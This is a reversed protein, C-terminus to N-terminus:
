EKRRAPERGDQLRRETQLYPVHARYCDIVKEFANSLLYDQPLVAQRRITRYIDQDTLRQMALAMRDADGRPVVLGNEGDRILDRSGKADTTLVPLGCYLAEMINFPLGEYESASVVADAARYYLNPNAVEGAFQVLHSIELEAALKQCATELEGQGVLVLRAQPMHPSAAAFARLICAQNKRASFEGVCLLLFHRETYGLAARFALLEAKAVEPLRVPDLGMGDILRIDKALHFRRAIQDDERNMVMLCDVPQATLQECLTYGRARMGGNADFLYGHSTQLMVPRVGRGAAVVAMRILVGALTTHASVVDYQQTRLLVALKHITGAAGVLANQKHFPVDYSKNVEPLPCAGQAVVDVQWGLSQFYALYPRHFRQIHSARSACFLIKHRM